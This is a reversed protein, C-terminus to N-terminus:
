ERGEVFYTRLVGIPQIEIEVVDGAKLYVRPDMASGIGAPTGTMILDGPELTTGRSLWYIIDPVSFTMDNTSADQRVEGNVMTRLRLEHPNSIDESPVIVPGMPCSNDLAKGKFYQVHHKQQDRATIDNAITYGFVHDYAQDRPIDRGRRGIVVTLEGEYDLRRSVDPDLPFIAEHGVVATPPKTFFEPYEMPKYIVGTARAAEEAHKQYNRGLCFVNRRPRPFPALVSTGSLPCVNGSRMLDAYHQGYSAVVREVAQRAIALLEKGGVVLESLDIPLRPDARNLDVVYDGALSGIRLEGKCAFTLLKLM